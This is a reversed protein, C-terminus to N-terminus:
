TYKFRLCGYKTYELVIFQFMSIKETQEITMDVLRRKRGEWGELNMETTLMYNFIQFCDSCNCKGLVM